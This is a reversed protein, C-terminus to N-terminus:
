DVSSQGPSRAPAPRVTTSIKSDFWLDTALDDRPRGLRGTWHDLAATAATRHDVLTDDLDFLVVSYMM